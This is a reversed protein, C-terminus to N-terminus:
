NFKKKLFRALYCFLFYLPGMLFYITQMWHPAHMCNCIPLGPYTSTPLNHIGLLYYGATELFILGVFYVFSFSLFRLYFNTIKWKKELNFFINIIFYLGFTWMLLPFLNIGFVELFNYNYQYYERASITWLFSLVFSTLLYLM